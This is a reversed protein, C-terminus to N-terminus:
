RRLTVLEEAVDSKSVGIEVGQFDILAQIVEPGTALADVTTAQRNGRVDFPSHAKSPIDRDRQLVRVSISGPYALVGAFIALGNELGFNLWFSLATESCEDAAVNNSTVDAPM